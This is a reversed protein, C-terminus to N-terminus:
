IVHVHLNLGEIVYSFRRLCFCYNITQVFIWSSHERSDWAIYVKDLTCMMIYTARNAIMDLCERKIIVSQEVINCGM